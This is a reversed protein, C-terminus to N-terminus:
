PASRERVLSRLSTPIANLDGAAVIEARLFGARELKNLSSESLLFRVFVEAGAANEAVTPITVGYSAASGRFAQGRPNTYSVTTYWDALARDSQDVEEPLDIYPVGGVL